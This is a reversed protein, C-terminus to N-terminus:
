GSLVDVREIIISSLPADAEDRAALSIARVVDLGEVAFGFVTHHGNLWPMAEGGPVTFFFQSANTNPGANAMCLWCCDKEMTHSFFPFVHLAEDQFPAGGDFASEGGTGDGRPCGGQVIANPIVRHFTLRDYKRQRSLRVFNESALPAIHPLLHVRVTGYGRVHVLAVPLKTTAATSLQPVVDKLLEVVHAEPSGPQVHNAATSAPEVGEEKHESETADNTSIPPPVCATAAGGAAATNGPPPSVTAMLLAGCAYDRERHLEECLKAWLQQRQQQQEASAEGKEHPLERTNAESALTIPARAPATLFRQVALGSGPVEGSYVLLSTTGAEVSTTLLLGEVTATTTNAALLQKRGEAGLAAGLPSAAILNKLDQSPAVARRLLLLPARCLAHPAEGATSGSRHLDRQTELRQIEGAFSTLSFHFATPPSWPMAAEDQELGGKWALDSGQRVLSELEGPSHSLRRVVAAVATSASYGEQMTVEYVYIPRGCVRTPGVDADGSPLPICSRGSLLQTCSVEPVMVYYRAKASSAGAGDEVHIQM